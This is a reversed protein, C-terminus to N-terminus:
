HKINFVTVGLVNGSADYQTVRVSASNYTNGYAASVVNYTNGSLGSESTAGGNITIDFFKITETTFTSGAASVNLTESMYTGLYSGHGNTDNPAIELNVKAEVAGALKAVTFVEGSAPNTGNTVTVASVSGLYKDMCIGYDTYGSLKKGEGPYNGIFFVGDDTKATPQAYSVGEPNGYQSIFDASYVTKVLMDNANGVFYKAKYQSTGAAIINGTFISDEITILCADQAAVSGGQQSAWSYPHKVFGVGVDGTAIITADSVCNIFKWDMPQNNDTAGINGPGFCVFSAAGNNGQITGHVTVNKVVLNNGAQRIVAAGYGNININANATFNEITYVETNTTSAKGVSRFLQQDLNNFTVGNGDFSGNINVATWGSADVTSAGVWKYYAYAGEYENSIAQIDAVSSILYPHEASGNGGSFKYVATFPSFSDVLMTIKSGDYYYDNAASLAALSDKSTMEVNNHYLKTLSVAGIELEVKIPEGSATVPYGDETKLSVEYATANTGDEIVINGGVDAEEVTLILDTDDAVAANNATLTAGAPVTATAVGADIVTDATSDYSASAIAQGPFESLADYTNGFSDNEITYQTAVANLGFTIKPKNADGPKPNAEDGVTEPMYIILAIVGSTAGAELYAGDGSLTANAITPANTGADSIADARNAYPGANAALEAKGFKLYESLKFPDGAQNTGAIENDVVAVLNYKFALDGNNKVRVYAVQTAGPEFMIQGATGEDFVKTNADVTAWSNAFATGNTAGTYVELVMDLSGAVITNRGSTISDTYWAFTTGVLMTVCLCLVVLSSIFASKASRKKTM